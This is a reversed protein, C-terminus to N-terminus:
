SAAAPAPTTPQTTLSRNNEVRVTPVQTTENKAAAETSTAPRQDSTAVWGPEALMPVRSTPLVLALVPIVLQAAIAASWVSHRAAATQRRLMWVIASATAIVVSGKLACDILFALVQSWDVTSNTLWTM